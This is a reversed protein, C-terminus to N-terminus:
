LVWFLLYKSKAANDDVIPTAMKLRKNNIYELPYQQQIPEWKDNSYEIFIKNEEKAGSKQQAQITASKSSPYLMLQQQQDLIVIPRGSALMKAKQKQWFNAKQITESKKTAAVPGLPKGIEFDCLKWQKKEEQQPAVSM